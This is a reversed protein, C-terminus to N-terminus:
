SSFALLQEIALLYFLKTINNWFQSQPDFSGAWNQSVNSVLYLLLSLSAYNFFILLVHVLM